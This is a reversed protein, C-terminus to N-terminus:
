TPVDAWDPQLGLLAPDIPVSVIPEVTQVRRDQEVDRPWLARVEAARRRIEGATPDPARPNSGRPRSM